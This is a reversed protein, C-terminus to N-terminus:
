SRDHTVFEIVLELVTDQNAKSIALHNPLNVSSEALKEAIPCMGKKYYVSELNSDKPAIVTDYWDGLYIKDKKAKLILENANELCITYRLYINKYERNEKPQMVGEIPHLVEQYYMAKEIRDANREDVTKLQQRALFALANPLQQMSGKPMKACKEDAALVLPTLGVKKFFVALAKGIGFFSYTAQVLSSLLPHLLHRKIAIFGTSPLEKQFARIKSAYEESETAAAGGAVSSIVKDRGFSFISIDGFSGVKKGEVESGLAHACDEIVFLNNKRAIKMIRKIDAPKGFTNQVIICKTKPSIKERIKEPDINFDSEIDVYVPRAEAWIVANPVSICTYGQVIVEDGKKIGLAKLSAYLATRGSNFAIGHSVGIYGALDKELAEVDNGNKWKSWKFPNLLLSTVARKQAVDANPSFSTTILKSM